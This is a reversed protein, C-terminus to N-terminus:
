RFSVNNLNNEFLLSSLSRNFYKSEQLMESEEQFEKMKDYLSERTIYDFILGFKQKVDEKDKLEKIKEICDITENRGFQDGAYIVNHVINFLFPFLKKMAEKNDIKNAIMEPFSFSDRISTINPRSLSKIDKYEESLDKRKEYEVIKYMGSAELKFLNTSQNLEDDTVGFIKSISM